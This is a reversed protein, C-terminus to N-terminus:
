NMMNNEMRKKENKTKRCTRVIRNWWFEAFKNAAVVFIGRVCNWWVFFSLNLYPFPEQAAPVDCRVYCVSVFEYQRLTAPFWNYKTENEMYLDFIYSNTLM